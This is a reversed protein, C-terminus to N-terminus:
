GGFVPFLNRVSGVPGVKAFFNGLTEETVHSPLNAVFVNSTKMHMLKM